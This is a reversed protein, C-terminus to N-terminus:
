MEWGERMCSGHMCVSLQRREKVMAYLVSLAYKKSDDDCVIRSPVPVFYPREPTGPPMAAGPAEPAAEPPQPPPAQSLYPPPEMPPATNSRNDPQRPTRAHSNSRDTRRPRSDM